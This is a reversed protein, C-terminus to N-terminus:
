FSFGFQIKFSRLIQQDAPGLQVSRFLKEVIERTLTEKKVVCAIERDKRLIKVFADLELKGQLLEPDKIFGFPKKLRSQHKQSYNSQVGNIAKDALFSFNETRTRIKEPPKRWRKWVLRARQKVTALVLTLFYM